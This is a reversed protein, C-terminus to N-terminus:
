PGRGGPHPHSNRLYILERDGVLGVKPHESGDDKANIM